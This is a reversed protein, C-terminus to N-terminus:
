YERYKNKAKLVIDFKYVIADTNHLINKQWGIKEAVLLKRYSINKVMKKAFADREVSMNLEPFYMQTRTEPMNKHSIRFNIHPMRDTEYVGPIITYITYYGLNDSIASGSGVFNQDAHMLSQSVLSPDLVSINNYYNSDYGRSDLQWVEVLASNIPVCMNDLIRGSIKIYTGKAFKASGVFRWLNNNMYINPPPSKEWIMPTPVCNTAFVSKREINVGKFHIVTAKQSSSACALQGSFLCFISLMTTLIFFSITSSANSLYQQMRTSKIKLSLPNPMTVNIKSTNILLAISITTYFFDLAVVCTNISGVFLLKKTFPSYEVVRRLCSYFRVDSINKNVRVV